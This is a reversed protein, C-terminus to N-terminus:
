NEFFFIVLWNIIYHFHMTCAWVNETSYYNQATLKYFKSRSDVALQIHSSMVMYMLFFLPIFFFFINRADILTVPNKERRFDSEEVM